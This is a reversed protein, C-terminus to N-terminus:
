VSVFMSPSAMGGMKQKHLQAHNYYYVFLKMSTRLASLTRTFCRSRRKLRGLYTRLDANTSEVTYTQSRDQVPIHIGQDPYDLSQYIGFEDSYYVIANPGADIVKQFTQESRNPHAIVAWSLIERTARNVKTLVYM